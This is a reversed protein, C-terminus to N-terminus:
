IPNLYVNSVVGAKLTVEQIQMNGKGDHLCVEVDVDAGWTNMVEIKEGLAIIKISVNSM